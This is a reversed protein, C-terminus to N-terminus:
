SKSKVTVEAWLGRGRETIEYHDPFKAFVPTMAANSARGPPDPVQWGMTIALSIVTEMEENDWFGSGFDLSGHALDYLIQVSETIDVPDAKGEPDEAMIRKM